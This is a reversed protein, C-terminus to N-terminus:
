SGSWNSEPRRSFIPRFMIEMGGLILAHQAIGDGVAPIEAILNQVCGASHGGDDVNVLRVLRGRGHDVVHERLHTGLGARRVDEGARAALDVTDIGVFNVVDLQDVPILIGVGSKFGPSSNGNHFGVVDSFLERM